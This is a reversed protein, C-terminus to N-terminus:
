SGAAPEHAAATVPRRLRARAGEPAAERTWFMVPALLFVNTLGVLVVTAGVGMVLDSVKFGMIATYLATRLIVSKLYLDRQPDERDMEAYTKGETSELTHKKIVDAQAKATAADDVPAGPISADEATTIREAVLEARVDEKAKFGEFIMYGGVSIFLLGLIVPAVWMFRRVWRLQLM